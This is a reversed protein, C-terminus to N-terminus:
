ICRCLERSLEAGLCCLACLVFYFLACLWVEVLFHVQTGSGDKLPRLVWGALNMEGRVLGSCPAKLDDNKDSFAMIAITGDVFLRWHVLDV